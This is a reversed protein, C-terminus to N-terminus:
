ADHGGTWHRRPERQSVREKAHRARELRTADVLLSLAEAFKARAEPEQAVTMVTVAVMVTSAAVAVEADQLVHGGEEFAKVQALAARLYAPDHPHAALAKAHILVTDLANM